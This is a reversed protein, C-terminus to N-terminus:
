CLYDEQTIRGRVIKKFDLWLQKIKEDNDVIRKIREFDGCSKYFEVLLIDCYLNNSKCFLFQKLGGYKKYVKWANLEIKKYKSIKNAMIKFRYAKVFMGEM